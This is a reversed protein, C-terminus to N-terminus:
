AASATLGIAEAFKKKQGLFKQTVADGGVVIVALRLKRGVRLIEERLSIKIREAIAKGDVIM